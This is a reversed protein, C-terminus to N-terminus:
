ANSESMVVPREYVTSLVDVEIENSNDFDHNRILAMAEFPGSAEVIHRVKTIETKTSEVCYKM